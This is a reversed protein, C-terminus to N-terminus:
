KHFHINNVEVFICIVGLKEQEDTFFQKYISVGENIINDDIEDSNELLNPLLETIRNQLMEHFTPYKEIETIKVNYHDDQNCFRIIMGPQLKCFRGKFVRGEAKKIGSKILTFYPESLQLSMYYSM